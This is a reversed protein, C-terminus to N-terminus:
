RLQGASVPANCNAVCVTHPIIQGGCSTHCQSFNTFCGQECSSRSVDCGSIDGGFVGYEFDSQDKKLPRGLRKRELVYAQFQEQAYQKYSIQCQSEMIACSQSCSQRASVCSTACYNGQPTRPAIQEYQTEYVPQAPGCAALLLMAVLVFYRKM